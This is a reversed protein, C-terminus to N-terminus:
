FNLLFYKFRNQTAGMNRGIAKKTTKHKLIINFGDKIREIYVPVNGLNLKTIKSWDTNNDVPVFQSVDM